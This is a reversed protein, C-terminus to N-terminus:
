SPRWRKRAKARPLAKKGAKEKRRIQGKLMQLMMAVLTLPAKRRALSRM